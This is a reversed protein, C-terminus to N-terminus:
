GAAGDVELNLQSFFQRMFSHREEALRRGEATLMSEHLHQLKVLYERWATDESSYSEADLAAERTNHVRAGIRGAFHFARGIGIAGMSDLKDADFVIKAELSFPSEGARNRYRHTRVCEQVNKIFNEDSVSIERMVEEAMEAGVTAHCQHTTGDLESARGIDHLMAAYEVIWLDGGEVKAIHKAVNLVRRTHDWGHCHPLEALIDRVKDCLPSFLEEKSATKLM